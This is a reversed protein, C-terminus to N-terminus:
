AEGEPTDYAGKTVRAMLEQLLYVAAIEAQQEATLQDMLEDIAAPPQDLTTETASRRLPATTAIAAQASPGIFIARGPQRSGPARCRPSRARAPREEASVM